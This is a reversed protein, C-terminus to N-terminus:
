RLASIRTAASHFHRRRNDFTMGLFFIIAGGVVAWVWWETLQYVTVLQPSFTRFAHLLVLVAGLVLPAQLRRVAGAVVAAACAAGIGVLRWIPEDVLSALLSPLILVLTGPSFWAWSRAWPDQGLRLGGTTLLAIAIPVTAWELPQITGLMWSLPGAVVALALAVWALLRTFPARNLISGTVHLLCFVGVLAV